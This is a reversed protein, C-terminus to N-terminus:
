EGRQFTYIPIFAVIIIAKAFLIPRGLPVLTEKITAEAPQPRAAHAQLHLRMLLAELLVVASDIITGFDVAGVSILNAPIGRMDLVIFACLLSLPIVSAVILAARWNGLFVVLIAIVLVADMALNELVTRATHGILDSRDYISRIRVGPQLKHGQAEVAARVAAVVKSANASKTMQVIGEVVSNEHNFAVAGSRPSHGVTVQRVDGALLTRGNNASVVIRGIDDRREFIGIGRVVLAEEGRRVLGGGTNASANALAQRIQDLIVGYRNLALPDVQM